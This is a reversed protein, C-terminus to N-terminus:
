KKRAIMIGDRVSLLVNEVRPDKHITESYDRLAQTDKDKSKPDLVHGSWLVNDAMILGGSVVQDIVAHYYNLYNSKDADIFVLDLPQNLNPIIELAPGIIFEIQESYVSERFYARVRGELEENIDITTLSGDPSLGEALCLASYGTYTGIELIHKPKIMKSFLSLIRGQYHGSLMRPYLVELHTERTIKTLLDSQPSTFDCIYQDLEPSLFEMLCIYHLENM